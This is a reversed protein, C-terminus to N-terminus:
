FKFEPIPLGMQKMAKVTGPHVQDASAGLPYPTMPMFNLVAHYKAFDKRHKSWVRVIEEAIDDPLSADCLVAGPGARGPLDQELGKFAGKKFLIPYQTLAGPVKNAKALDSPTMPVFYIKRGSNMIEMTAPGGASKPCVFGGKPGIMLMGMFRLPIVDIKGNLFADKCGIAGLPAWKIDKYIGMVGFLPKDLLVGQFPRSREGTGVKKGALDDLTKIDPDFTGYVGMIAPSSVLAKVTPWPVKDFPKRGEALFDVISASGIVLTNDVKGEKMKERNKAIYRYMYMAGHTKQHKIRERSGAKKVVQEGAAGVNYMHTGFPTTMFVVDVPKHTEEATSLAPQLSFMALAALALVFMVSKKM